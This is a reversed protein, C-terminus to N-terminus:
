MIRTMFEKLSILKETGLRVYLFFGLVSILHGLNTPLFATLVANYVNCTYTNVFIYGHIRLLNVIEQM